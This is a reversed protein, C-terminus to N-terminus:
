VGSYVRGFSTNGSATNSAVAAATCVLVESRYRVAGDGGNTTKMVHTWGTSPRNLSVAANSLRSATVLITDQNYTSDTIGSSYPIVTDFEVTVGAPISATVPANLTVTNGTVSSVRVNSAFFGPEGSLGINTGVVYMNPAVGLNAATLSGTGTFVIVTNGSTTTNATTLSVFPRVQREKSFHPKDYVSDTNGWASM